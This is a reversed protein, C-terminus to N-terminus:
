KNHAHLNGNKEIYSIESQSDDVEPDILVTDACHELNSGERDSAM